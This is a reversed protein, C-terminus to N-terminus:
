PEKKQRIEQLRQLDAQMRSRVSDQTEKAIADEVAPIAATAELSVLTDSAAVKVNPMPDTLARITAEVVRKSDAESVHSFRTFLSLALLRTSSDSKLQLVDFIAGLCSENGLDLMYKVAYLRTSAPVDQGVCTRRLTAFGEQQGMEALALAINTKTEPVKESRLADIIAPIADAEKGEALTIAAFYRVHADPNRLAIILSDKTLEIHRERLAQKFTIFGGTQPPSVGQALAGLSVLIILFPWKLAARCFHM